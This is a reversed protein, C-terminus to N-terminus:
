RTKEKISWTDLIGKGLRLGHLNVEQNEESLIKITKAKVNLGKIWKYPTLYLDLNMKKCMCGWNNWYWKNFPIDKGWPIGKLGHTQM